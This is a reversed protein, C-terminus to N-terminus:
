FTELTVAKNARCTKQLKRDLLDELVLIKVSQVELM